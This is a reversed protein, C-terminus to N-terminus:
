VEQHNTHRQDGKANLSYLETIKQIDYEQIQTLSRIWKSDTMKEPFDYLDYFKNTNGFILVENVLSDTGYFM